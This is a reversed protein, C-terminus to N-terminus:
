ESKGDDNERERRGSVVEPWVDGKERRKEKNALSLYFHKSLVTSHMEIKFICHQRDSCIKFICYLAFLVTSYM